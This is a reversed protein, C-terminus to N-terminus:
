AGKGTLYDRYEERLENKRVKNSGTLPMSDVFIVGDPVWWKAMKPRMFDLLGEESLTSGPRRVVVMVPREQWKPHPVSIAAALSVEPHSAAIKELDISSIWEGGSKILDKSRDVLRMYGDPDITAIDGTILWGDKDTASGEEMDLYSKTAWLGRFRLHGRTKGDHAVPNGDDDVLRAVFGPTQRGDTCQYIVREEKPLALQPASLIGSTGFMCETMGWNHGTKMNYQDQLKSILAPSLGGGASILAELPELSKGTQESYEILNALISPVLALNTVREQSILEQVAKPSLDRGPLVLKRGIYFAGFPINWASSHFMPALPMLVLPNREPVPMWALSCLTMTQLFANRHSYVVGKPLGTTGSTFCITAATREDFEPWDFTASEAGLWDEYCELELSRSAPMNEPRELVVFRRIHKLTPAIAEVQPLIDQDFFLIEGKGSNVVFALQDNSLRPNATHIAAGIGTLGYFLELHRHTNWAITTARAGLGLGRKTLANALQKTRANIQRFTFRVPEGSLERSVVECRGNSVAGHENIVSLLLPMDMSLGHLVDM